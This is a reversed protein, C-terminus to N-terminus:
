QLRDVNCRCNGEIVLCGLPDVGEGCSRPFRPVGGHNGAIAGVIKEGVAWVFVTGFKGHVQFVMM